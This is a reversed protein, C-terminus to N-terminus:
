KSRGRRRSQRERKKRAKHGKKHPTEGFTAKGPYIRAYKYNVKRGEQPSDWLNMNKSVVMQRHVVQWSSLDKHSTGLSHSQRHIDMNRSESLEDTACVM